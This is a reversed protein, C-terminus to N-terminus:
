PYSLLAYKIFPKGFEFRSEWISQLAEAKADPSALEIRDFKIKNSQLVVGVWQDGFEVFTTRLIENTLTLQEVVEIWLDESGTFPRTTMLVWMQEERKGQTLFESQGPPCPYIFEIQDLALGASKLYQSLDPAEFRRQVGEQSKVDKLTAAMDKLTPFKLINGVSLVKGQKRVFGTLQIASISDGGVSLFNTEQGIQSQDISLIKAFAKALLKQSATEIPTVAAHSVGFSDLIYSTLIETSMEKVWSALLKRDSKGSPLKPMVGLPIVVKPIMYVALTKLDGRLKIIESEFAAPTQIGKEARTPGKFVVFSVLQPKTGVKSVITVCQSISQTRLIANEIEGLEIRHGNVKVQNDKRGLCEINGDPLWRALDGTRYM